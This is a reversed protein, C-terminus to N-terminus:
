SKDNLEKLARQINEPVTADEYRLDKTKKAGFIRYRDHVTLLATVGRIGEEEGDKYFFDIATGYTPKKTDLLALLCGHVKRITRNAHNKPM